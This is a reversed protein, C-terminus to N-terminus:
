GGFGPVLLKTLIVAVIVFTIISFVLAMTQRNRAGKSAMQFQSELSKVQSDLNTLVTRTETTTAELLLTTRDFGSQVREDNSRLGTNFASTAAEVERKLEGNAAMLTEKLLSTGTVLESHLGHLDDLRQNLDTAALKTVIVGCDQSFKETTQLVKQASALIADMQKQSSDLLDAANRMRKLEGAMAQISQEAELVRDAEPM